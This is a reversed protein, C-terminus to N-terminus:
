KVEAEFDCRRNKSLPAGPASIIRGRSRFSMREPPVGLSSLYGLTSRARREGLELNYQDSGIEDACGVIVIRVDPTAILLQAHEKLVTGTQPTIDSRDFQFYIPALRLATLKPAPHPTPAAALQPISPPAEASVEPTLRIEVTTTAGAKINAETRTMVYGDCSATLIQNGIAVADLQFLGQADAQVETPASVENSTGPELHGTPFHILAALPRGTRSDLVRGTLIGHEPNSTGLPRPGPRPPSFRNLLNVARYTVGFAIREFPESATFGEIKTLALAASVSGLHAKFGANLDRGDMELAFALNRNLNLEAGGFLGVAWQHHSGFLYDSNFYKTREGYGVFRGRGLGAHIRLSLPQHSSSNVLQSTSVVYASFAEAPKDPYAEDPWVNDGHGISSVDTHIGIDHIGAALAFPVASSRPQPRILQYSFGLVYDARTYASVALEMRDTIGLRANFDGEAGPADHSRIMASTGALTFAVSSRPLVDATPADILLATRNFDARLLPTMTLLILSGVVLVSLRGPRRQERDNQHSKPNSITM